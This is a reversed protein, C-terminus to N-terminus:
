EPDFRLLEKQVQMRLVPLFCQLKLSIDRTTPTPDRTETTERIDTRTEIITDIQKRETTREEKQNETIDKPNELIDTEKERRETEIVMVATTWETKIKPTQTRKMM